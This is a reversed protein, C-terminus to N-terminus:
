KLELVYDWSLICRCRVTLKMCHGYFNRLFLDLRRFFRMCRLVAMDRRYFLVIVIRLFKPSKPDIKMEHFYLVSLIEAISTSGGAHGIGSLAIMKVVNIRIRNAIENLKNIEIGVENM